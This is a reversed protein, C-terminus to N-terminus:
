HSVRFRPHGEVDLKVHGVRDHRGRADIPELQDFWSTRGGGEADCKLTCRGDDFTVNWNLGIEM